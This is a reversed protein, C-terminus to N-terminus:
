IKVYFDFIGLKGMFTWLQYVQQNIDNKRSIKGQYCKMELDQPSFALAALYWPHHRCLDAFACSQCDANCDMWGCTGYYGLCAGVGLYNGLHKKQSCSHLAGVGSYAGLSSGTVYPLRGPLKNQMSAHWLASADLCTGGFTAVCLCPQSNTRNHMSEVLIWLLCSFRPLLTVPKTYSGETNLSLAVTM